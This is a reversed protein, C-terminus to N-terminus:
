VKGGTVIQMGERCSTRCALVHPQGDASVRCEQCQGM